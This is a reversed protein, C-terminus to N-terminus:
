SERRATRIRIAVLAIVTMGVIPILLGSFEPIAAMEVLFLDNTDGLVSNVPLWYPNPVASGGPGPQAGAPLPTPNFAALDNYGPWPDYILALDDNPEPTGSDNYGAIVKYHGQMNRDPLAPWRPDMNSPWGNHDDWIVPYLMAIYSALTAATLASGDWQDHEYVSGIHGTFAAQIEKPSGGTGDVVGFGHRDCIANSANEGNITDLECSDYIIDQPTLPLGFRYGYIMQICAPGSYVSCHPCDDCSGTFGYLNDGPPPTVAPDVGGYKVDDWQALYTLHWPMYLTCWTCPFGVLQDAHQHSLNFGPIVTKATTHARWQSVSRDTAMLAFAGVVLIAIIIAAFWPKRSTSRKRKRHVGVLGRDIVGVRDSCGCSAEPRTRKAIRGCQREKRVIEGTLHM